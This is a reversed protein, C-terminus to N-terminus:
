SIPKRELNRLYDELEAVEESWKNEDVDLLQERSSNLEILIRDFKEEDIEILIKKSM